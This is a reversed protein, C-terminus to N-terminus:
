PRIRGNFNRARHEESSQGDLLRAGHSRAFVAGHSVILAGERSLERNPHRMNKGMGGGGCGDQGDEARRFILLAFLEALTRTLASTPGSRTSV